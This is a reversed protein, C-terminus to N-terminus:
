SPDTEVTQPEFVPDNIELVLTTQTPAVVPNMDAVMMLSVHVGDIADGIGQVSGMSSAPWPFHKVWEVFEDYTPEWKHDAHRTEDDAIGYHVNFEKNPVTIIIRKLKTKLLANVVANATPQDMHEVVETLLVDADEFLYEQEKIWDPTIEQTIATINDIGKNKIKVANYEQTDVDMDVAAVSEYYKALRLSYWLEGCGLDVLTDGRRFVASIADFRQQRTNGYNMAFKNTEHGQLQERFQDFINRNQIVKSSFLYRVFYPAEAANLAFLYKKVADKDLLFWVDDDHLAQMLCFLITLNVVKHVTKAVIVVNYYDGHLHTMKIEADKYSNTFGKAYRTSTVNLVFEAYAMHEDTDLPDIKRHCTNLCTTILSVPLYPSAYRTKDLYEFEAKSGNAFSSEESHDRFWLKFESDERQLVSQAAPTFWGYAMGKRVSKQFPKNAELITEPNKQIVYSFKPNESGLVLMGM